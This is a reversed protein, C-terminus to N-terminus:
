SINAKHYIISRNKTIKKLDLYMYNPECNMEVFGLSSYFNKLQKVRRNREIVNMDKMSDYDPDPTIPDPYLGIYRVNENLISSVNEILENLIIKGIGDGRSCPDIYFRDLHYINEGKGKYCATQKVLNRCIDYTEENYQHLLSMLEPMKKNKALLSLNFFHGSLEGIVEEKEENMKCINLYIGKTYPYRDAYHKHSNKLCVHKEYDENDAEESGM